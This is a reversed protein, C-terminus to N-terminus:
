FLERQCPPSYNTILIETNRNKMTRREDVISVQLDYRAAMDLIVPNDFESIAFRLGSEVCINFLDATDQETWSSNYNNGTELYPPDCYLFAKLKDSIQRFSIKNIVKRFDFNMFKVHQINKFINEINKFLIKKDNNPVAFLMTDQKGMYGFNSLFLFRVARMVPEVEQNHKWHQFLENHIPMIQLQEILDDKQLRLVQYLNFIENDIDNAFIYKCRDIMAFSVAGTGMFMDIFTRCEPFMSILKPVLKKKNGLRRLM